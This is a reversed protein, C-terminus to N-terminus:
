LLADLTDASLHDFLEIGIYWGYPERLTTHMVQGNLEYTNNGLPAKLQVSIVSGTPIPKGLYLGVGTQSLNEIWARQYEIDDAALVKGPTAPACRYRITIRRNGVSRAAAAEAFFLSGLMKM